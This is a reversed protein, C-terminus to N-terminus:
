TMSRRAWAVWQEDVAYNHIKGDGYNHYHRCFAIAGHQFSHLEVEDMAEFMESPDGFAGYDFDRHEPHSSLHEAMAEDTM